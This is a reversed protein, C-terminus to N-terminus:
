ITTLHNYSPEGEQQNLQSTTSPRTALPTGPTDTKHKTSKKNQNTLRAGKQLLGLYMQYHHQDCDERLFVTRWNARSSFGLKVRKGRSGFWRRGKSVPHKRNNTTTKRKPSIHLNKTIAWKYRRLRQRGFFVNQFLHSRKLKYQDRQKIQLASLPWYFNSGWLLSICNLTGSPEYRRTYPSHNALM